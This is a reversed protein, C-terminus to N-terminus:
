RGSHRRREDDSGALGAGSRRVRGAQVRPRGGRLLRVVMATLLARDAPERAKNARILIQDLTGFESPAAALVIATLVFSNQTRM